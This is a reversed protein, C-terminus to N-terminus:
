ACYAVIPKKSAKLRELHQSWTSLPVSVAGAIHGMRYADASRVDIVLLRDKDHGAKFEAMDMRPVAATDDARLARGGALLLIAAAAAARLSAPRM